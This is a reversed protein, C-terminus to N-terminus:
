EFRGKSLGRFYIHANKFVDLYNVLEDKDVEATDFSLQEQMVLDNSDILATLMAETPKKEGKTAEEKYVAARLAKLGAKKMRSDLDVSRLKSGVKLQADLFLAALKEAENLTPTSEYANQIVGTCKEIFLKFEDRM